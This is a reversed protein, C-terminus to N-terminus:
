ADQRQGSIATSSTTTFKLYWEPQRKFIEKLVSIWGMMRRLYRKIPFRGIFRNFAYHFGWETLSQLQLHSRIQVLNSYCHLTVTVLHFVWRIKLKRIADWTIEQLADTALRPSVHWPEHRLRQGCWREMSFWLATPEGGPAPASRHSQKAKISIGNYVTRQVLSMIELPESLHKQHKVDSKVYKSSCITFHEKWALTQCFIHNAGRDGATRTSNIAEDPRLSHAKHESLRVGKPPVM